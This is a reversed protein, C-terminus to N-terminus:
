FVQRESLADPELELSKSRARWAAFRRISLAVGTWVLFVAGLTAIGAITQGALGLAEGTHLFRMWFRARRGSTLSDFTETALIAGSAADVTITKRLQPQGPYGHDITATMQDEASRLTISKWGPEAQIADFARGAADPNLAQPAASKAPAPPAEGAARYVLDSAWKYSIVAGSAIIVLLPLFCWLGIVNHWNFDRAKSSLGGRFWVIPRLHRATFAKPIWLYAGSLVLGLFALNCAGTIARGSARSEGSQALWRHLEVVTRFFDRVSQNGAGLAAGTYPNLLTRQGGDLQLVVPDAPNNYITAALAERDAMDLLTSLPLRDQRVDIGLDRTDAWHIMQKEYTLLVGTVAMLLIIAGAVTGASLHLWFLIKRLPV